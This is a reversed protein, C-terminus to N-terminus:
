PKKRGEIEQIIKKREPSGPKTKSYDNMLKMIPDDFNLRKFQNLDGRVLSNIKLRQDSGGLLRSLPHEGQGGAKTFIGDPGFFKDAAKYLRNAGQRNGQAALKDAENILKTYNGQFQAGFGEKLWNSREGITNWKYSKTTNLGSMIKGTRKLQNLQDVRHEFANPRADPFKKEFMTKITKLDRNGLTDNLGHLYEM